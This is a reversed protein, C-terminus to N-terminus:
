SGPFARRVSRRGWIACSMCGGRGPAATASLEYVKNNSTKWDWNNLLLNAVVLGKFPQTGDFENKDWVM